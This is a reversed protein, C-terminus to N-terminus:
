QAKTVATTSRKEGFIDNLVVQPQQYEKSM